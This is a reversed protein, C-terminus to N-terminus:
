TRREVGGIFQRINPLLLHDANSLGLHVKGRGRKRNTIAIPQLRRLLKGFSTLGCPKGSLAASACSSSRAANTRATPRDFTRITAYEDPACAASKKAARCGAM